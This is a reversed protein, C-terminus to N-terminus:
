LSGGKKAERAKRAKKYEIYNWDPSSIIAGTEDIKDEHDPGLEKAKNRDKEALEKKGAKEYFEARILYGTANKPQLTLFHDMDALAKDLQGMSEYVRARSRYTEPFDPDVDIGRTLCALARDNRGLKHYSYGMNNFIYAAKPELAAAKEYYSVAEQRKDMEVYLDGIFVYYNDNNPNLSSATLLDALAKEDQDTMIYMLGRFFYLDDRKKPSLTIAENYDQLARDWKKLDIYVHGRMTHSLPAKPNLEIAKDLDALALDYKHLERYANGRITYYYDMKPRLAIGKTIYSVTDEPKGMKNSIQAARRYLIPAKPDLAIAKDFCERGRAYQKLNEAYLNGLSELPQYAKPNMDMAKKYNEEARPFDELKRYAHGILIYQASLGVGNGAPICSLGSQFDSVADAYKKEQLNWRGRNNYIKLRLADPPNLSLATNWDRGAAAGQKLKVYYGARLWYVAPNKPALSVAHNMDAMAKEMEGKMFYAKARAAYAEFRDPHSKVDAEAKQLLVAAQEEKTLKRKAPAAQAPSFMDGAAGSALAAETRQPGGPVAAAVALFCGALLVAIKKKM